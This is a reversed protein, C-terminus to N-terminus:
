IFARRRDDDDHDLHDFDSQSEKLIKDHEGTFYENLSALLAEDSKRTEPLPAFKFSDNTWFFRRKPFSLTRMHETAVM